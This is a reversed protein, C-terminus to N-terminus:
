KPAPAPPTPTRRVPSPASGTGRGAPSSGPRPASSMPTTMTAASKDYLGIIERTIDITNSAYLVPTQQSSVDLVLVYGNDTAYKNLVAMMKGGLDSMLRQNEQELEANADDTDRNLSKTKVDIDRVLKQKAEESMANAGKRYQEQAAAIEGQKRDLEAKKPTFKTQLNAAAKQGDKTQLIAAQIDIVAVKSGAAPATTAPATQANQANACLAALGMIPFMLYKSKM